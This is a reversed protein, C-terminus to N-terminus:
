SFTVLNYVFNPIVDVCVAPHFCSGIWLFVKAIVTQIMLWSAIGSTNRSVVVIVKAVPHKHKETLIFPFICLEDVLFM